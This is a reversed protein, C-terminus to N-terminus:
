QVEVLVYQWRTQDVRNGDHNTRTSFNKVAEEFALYFIGKNKLSYSHQITTCGASDTNLISGAHIKFSADLDSIMDNSDNFLGNGNVDREIKNKGGAVAEETPRLSFDTKAFRKTPHDAEEMEYTGQALRGADRLGDGNVDQGDIKPRGQYYRTNVEDNDIHHADYQATPETSAVFEVVNRRGDPGRSLVIVRDDYVGQGRNALSNTPIRLGLIVAEGADLAALAAREGRSEVISAYVDFKQEDSLGQTDPIRPRDSAAANIRRLADGIELPSATSTAEMQDPILSAGVRASVMRELADQVAQPQGHKTRRLVETAAGARGDQLLVAIRDAAIANGTRDAAASAFPALRPGSISSGFSPRSVSVLATM